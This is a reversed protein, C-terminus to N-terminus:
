QTEQRLFPYFPPDAANPGSRTLSSAAKRTIVSCSTVNQSALLSLDRRWSKQLLTGRQQSNKKTKSVLECFEIRGYLKGNKPPQPEISLPLKRSPRLHPKNPTIRRGMVSVSSPSAPKKRNQDVFDRIFSLQPRKRGGLGEKMEKDLRDHAYSMGRVPALKSVADRVSDEVVGLFPAITTKLSQASAKIDRKSSNPDLFTEAYESKADGARSSVKLLQAAAERKKDGSSQFEKGSNYVSLLSDHQSNNNSNSM